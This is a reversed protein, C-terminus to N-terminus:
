PNIQKVPVAPPAQVRNIQMGVTTPLTAVPEEATYM